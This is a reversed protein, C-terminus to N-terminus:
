VSRIQLTGALFDGSALAASFTTTGLAGISTATSNFQLVGTGNTEPFGMYKLNASADYIKVVGSVTGSYATDELGAPLGMLIDNSATGGAGSVALRFSITTLKGQTMYMAWTTTKPVAGSQTLTPTYSTWTYPFAQTAAWTPLGGSVTLVQNTSGIARVAPTSAASAYIIDGTATLTAKTIDPSTQWSFDLDTASAKVLAQGTTGGKLDLLATDIDQGLTAIATAGDKVLDTSQPIDWGFNTTTTAM